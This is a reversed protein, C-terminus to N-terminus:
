AARAIPSEELHSLLDGADTYIAAAAGLAEDDWGGCRLAICPVGAKGAAEVDYPTDGLMVAEEATCRGRGLAATVIDADPKSRDADDSSTIEEVLDNVNAIALLKDVEDKKASTAVVLRLGRRRLESLLERVKPFAELRPMYRQQFIETRRASIKKGEDSEDDVGILEPLLKDGGKGIGARVREFPVEHGVEALVDVWAHAHADNSDVLTGDIDLLVVRLKPSRLM